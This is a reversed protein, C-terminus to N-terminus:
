GVVPPVPEGTVGVVAVVVGTAVVVTGTGVLEVVLAVFVGRVLSLVSTVVFVVSLLEDVADRAAAFTLSARREKLLSPIVM